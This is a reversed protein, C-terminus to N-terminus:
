YFIFDNSSCRKNPFLNSKYITGNCNCLKMKDTKHYNLKTAKCYNSNYLKKYYNDDNKFNLIDNYTIPILNNQIINFKENGNKNSINDSISNKLFIFLLIASTILIYVNINM